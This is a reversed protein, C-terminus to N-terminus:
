RHDIAYHIPMSGQSDVGLLLQPDMRVLEQVMEILDHMCVLHMVNRGLRDKVRM